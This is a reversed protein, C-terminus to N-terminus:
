TLTPKKLTAGLFTEVLKRHPKSGRRDITIHCKEINDLNVQKLLDIIDQNYTATQNHSHIGRVDKKLIIGHVDFSANEIKKFFYCAMRHSLKSFKLENGNVHSNWTGWKLPKKIARTLLQNDKGDKLVVAAM